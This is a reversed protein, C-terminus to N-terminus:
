VERELKRCESLLFEYLGDLHEKRTRFNVPNIRLWSRGKLYTTAIWYLGSDATRRAAEIHLRARRAEDLDGAAYRACVASMPPEIATQFVGERTCREHFHRAQEVNADIWEGLRRTGYRKFGLWVKLGRFRRSQEFGHMYFDFHEDEVKSEDTLYPPRLGFSRRLQSADRVLVAGADLPAFFWKHPDITISDAEEIGALLGPFRQSLLMGGGYAADVHLWLGERTAIRRLAKLDDISGTNTSGGM